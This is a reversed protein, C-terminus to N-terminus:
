GPMRVDVRWGGDAPGAAVVGGASEARERLGTLGYGPPLCTSPPGAPSDNVVSLEVTTPLYALRIRTAAGPAHKRVNSLAEQAGRYLALGTEAALPRPEGVLEYGAGDTLAKVLDPLPLPDGRLAAVARRTETLGDRVLRGARDVVVAADATRDRELLAAATEIQVALASLSHALVDHIERALRAREALAAGRAQEQRTLEAQAFREERLQRIVILLLSVCFAFVWSLVTSVRDHTGLQVLALAAAQVGVLIATARPSLWRAALVGSAVVYFPAYSHPVLGQLLVGGAGCAVAAWAPRRVRLTLAWWAASAVAMLALVALGRAGTAPHPLRELMGVTLLALAVLSRTTRWRRLSEDDTILDKVRAASLVGETDV